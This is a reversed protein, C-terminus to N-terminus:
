GHSKGVGAGWWPGVCPPPVPGSQQRHDRKCPSRAQHETEPCPSGRHHQTLLSLHLLDTSGCVLFTPAPVAQTTVLEESKRHRPTHSTLFIAAERVKQIRDLSTPGSPMLSVIDTRRCGCRGWARALSAPAKEPSLFM